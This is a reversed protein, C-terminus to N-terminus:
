RRRPKGSSALWDRRVFYPGGLAHDEHTHVMTWSLDHPAVFLELVALASLDPLEGASVCEYACTLLSSAGAVPPGVHRPLPAIVFTEARERAYENQARCGHRHRQGQAWVEGYVSRWGATIAALQDQPLVKWAIGHEDLFSSLQEDPTM